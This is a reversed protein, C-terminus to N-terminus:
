ANGGEGNGGNFTRRLFDKLDEDKSAAAVKRRLSKGFSEVTKRIATPSRTASPSMAMTCALATTLAQAIEGTRIVAANCDSVMSTDVISQTIAELLAREHTEDYELTAQAFTTKTDIM